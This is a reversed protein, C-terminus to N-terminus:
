EETSRQLAQLNRERKAEARAIAHAGIVKCAHVDAIYDGTKRLVSLLQKVQPSFKEAIDTGTDTAAYPMELLLRM